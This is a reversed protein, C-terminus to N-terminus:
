LAELSVNSRKISDFYIAKKTRAYRSVKPEEFLGKSLLDVASVVGLVNAEGKSINVMLIFDNFSPAFTISDSKQMLWSSGYRMMSDFSQSKVHIQKGCNTVLDAAFSKNFRDYITFDPKNVKFGKEKLYKYAAVEGLKGIIIDERIKSLRFEGRYSYLDKSTELQADAFKVCKDFYYKSINLFM